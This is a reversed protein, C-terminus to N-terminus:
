ASEWGHTGRAPQSDAQAKRATLFSELVSLYRRLVEHEVAQFYGDTICVADGILRLEHIIERAVGTHVKEDHEAALRFFRPIESSISNWLGAQDHLCEAGPNEGGEGLCNILVAGKQAHRDDTLAIVAIMTLATRRAQEKLRGIENASHGPAAKEVLELLNVMSRKVIKAIAATNENM